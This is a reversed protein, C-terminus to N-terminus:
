EGHLVCAVIEFMQMPAHPCLEARFDVRELDDRFTYELAIVSFRRKSCSFHRQRCCVRGGLDVYAVRGAFVAPDKSGFAM